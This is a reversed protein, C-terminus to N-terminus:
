IRGYGVTKRILEYKEKAIKETYERGRDLAKDIIDSEMIEKYKEQIATLKECLLDALSKKLEGYGCGAFKEVVEDVSLGSFVSYITLLNSLGPKNEEDFKIIGDSDTTAGMIKKRIDKESDLLFITGKTNEASKSMKKTPDKLDRIKAGIQPIVPEPVLFYDGKYRENFREALNRALEVHQKQDIGTPVYKADYLLIDSAMLVPYTALAASFGEKNKTKEKFQHMRTLEGFPTMCELIWSLNAHYLNESQIYLHMNDLNVDVGCAIYLAVASKINRHLEDPDQPVTTAHMDPVFLFTEYNKQYNIVQRIGGSFNGITLSGSPQLGTLLREM